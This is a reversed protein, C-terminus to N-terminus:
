EIASEHLLIPLRGVDIVEGTNPDYAASIRDLRFRRVANRELCKAMVAGSDPDFRYCTIRRVSEQGHADTYEIVLPLKVFFGAFHHAPEPAAEEPHDAIPASLLVSAPASFHIETGSPSLGVKTLWNSFTM